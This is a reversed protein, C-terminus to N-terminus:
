LFNCWVLKSAGSTPQKKLHNRAIALFHPTGCAKEYMAPFHPIALFRPSVVWGFPSWARQLKVQTIILSVRGYRWFVLESALYYLNRYLSNLPQEIVVEIRGTLSESKL